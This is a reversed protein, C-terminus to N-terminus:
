KTRLIFHQKEKFEPRFILLGLDFLDISLLVRRDARLQNWNKTAGPTEHIFPIFLINNDTLTSLDSTQVVTNAGFYTKLREILPLQANIWLCGDLLDYVFPSHIGHRNKAKLNYIFWQTVSFLSM